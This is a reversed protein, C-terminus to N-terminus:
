HKTHTSSSKFSWTSTSLPSHLCNPKELCPVAFVPPKTCLHIFCVNQMYSQGLLQDCVSSTASFKYICIVYFNTVCAIHNCYSREGFVSIVGWKLLVTAEYLLCIVFERYKLSLSVSLFSRKEEWKNLRVKEHFFHLGELMM